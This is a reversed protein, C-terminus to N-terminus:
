ESNSRVEEVFELKLFEMPIEVNNSIQYKINTYKRQSDGIFSKKLGLLFLIVVENLSDTIGKGM